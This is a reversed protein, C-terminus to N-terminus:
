RCLLFEVDGQMQTLAWTNWNARIPRALSDYLYFIWYSYTGSFPYLHYLCDLIDANLQAQNM